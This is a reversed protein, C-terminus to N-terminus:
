SRLVIDFTGLICKKWTNEHIKTKLYNDFKKCDRLPQDHNYFEPYFLPLM